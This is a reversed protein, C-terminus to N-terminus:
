NLGKQTSHAIVAQARAPSRLRGKRRRRTNNGIPARRRRHGSLAGELRGLTRRLTHPRGQAEKRRGEEQRCNRVFPRKPTGGARGGSWTRPGDIEGIM